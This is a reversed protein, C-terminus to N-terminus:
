GNFRNMARDIGEDIWAQCADAAREVIAELDDALAAPFPTLVYEVLDDGQPPEDDERIGIRVRPVEDTRLSEVVSELGRHGGPSGGRRMRLTGVPLAVDDYVVLIGAPDLGHIEQLCAAAYGSRNMYTQPQALLLDGSRAVRCRCDGEELAVDRRRALAEVVRFGVNHRTDRYEAGPNGLGLVLRCPSSGPRDEPREM